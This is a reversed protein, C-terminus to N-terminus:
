INKKQYEVQNDNIKNEINLCVEKLDGKLGIIKGIDNVGFLIKGKGYNAFASITKLFSNLIEVKYELNKSERELM